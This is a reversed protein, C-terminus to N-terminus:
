ELAFFEGRRIPCMALMAIMLGDRFQVALDRTLKEASTATTMLEIGFGFLHSSHEIRPAKPNVPKADVGIRYALKALWKPHKGESLARVM